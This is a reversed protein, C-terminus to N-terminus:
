FQPAFVGINGIWFTIKGFFLLFQFAYRLYVSGIYFLPCLFREGFCHFAADPFTKMFLCHSLRRRAYIQKAPLLCIHDKMGFIITRGSDHEAMSMLRYCCLTFASLKM